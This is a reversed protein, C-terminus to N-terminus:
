SWIGGLGEEFRERQRVFRGVNLRGKTVNFGELGGDDDNVV